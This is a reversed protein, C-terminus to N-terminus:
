FCELLDGDEVPDPTEKVVAREDGFYREHLRVVGTEDVGYVAEDSFNDDGVFNGDHSRYNVPPAFRIGIVTIEDYLELVRTPDGWNDLTEAGAGIVRNGYESVAKNQQYADEYEYVYETLSEEDFTSPPEPYPKIGVSHLEDIEGNPKELEFTECVDGTPEPRDANACNRRGAISDPDPFPGNTNDDIWEAKSTCGPVANEDPSNKDDLNASNEGQPNLNAICGGTGLLVSVAGAVLLERRNM